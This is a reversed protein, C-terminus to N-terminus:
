EFGPLAVETKRIAYYPYEWRPRGDDIADIAHQVKALMIDVAQGVTKCIAIQRMHIKDISSTGTEHDFGIIEVVEWKM